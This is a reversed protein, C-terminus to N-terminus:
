LPIQNVPQSDFRSFEFDRPRRESKRYGAYPIHSTKQYSSYPRGSGSLWNDSSVAM